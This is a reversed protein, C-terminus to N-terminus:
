GGAPAWLHTSYWRYVPPIDLKVIPERGWDLEVGGLVGGAIGSAAGVGASTGAIGLLTKSLTGYQSLDAIPTTFRTALSILRAYNSEEGGFAGLNAM